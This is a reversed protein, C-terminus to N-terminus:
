QLRVLGPADRGGIAHALLEAGDVVRPGPRSTYANGDLAWVPGRLAGAIRAEPSDSTLFRRWESRARELGFGCLAVVVLDPALALIEHWSSRVSHSGPAAGVDRGGAASILEPTWHGALYLPELWEVVVVRPVAGAPRGPLRDLREQLNSVLEVAASDRGLAAAVTSIDEFVGALFRARLGLVVPPREFAQALQRVEGDVVACVECLDQALVLDPRASVLAAGDVAIVARGEHHLRRVQADISASDEATRVPSWTLRPRDTIAAPFDCEHSIGVLLDGAGLACVIETAAPLLSAVRPPDTSV